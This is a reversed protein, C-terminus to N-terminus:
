SRRTNSPVAVGPYIAKAPHECPVEFRSLGTSVRSSRSAVNHPFPSRPRSDKIQGRQGECALCRGFIAGAHVVRVIEIKGGTIRYVVVYKGAVFSRLNQKQVGLYDWVADLDSRAEPAIRYGNM